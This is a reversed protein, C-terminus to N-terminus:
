TAPRLPQPNHRATVLTHKRSKKATSYPPALPKMCAVTRLDAISVGSMDHLRLVWVSPIHMLGQRCKAMISQAMGAALCIRQTSLHPNGLERRVHDILSDVPHEYELWDGAAMGLLKVRVKEGEQRVEKIKNGSM